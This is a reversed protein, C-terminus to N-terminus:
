WSRRNGGFRVANSRTDHQRGGHDTQLTGVYNLFRQRAIAEGEVNARAAEMVEVTKYLWAQHWKGDLNPTQGSDTLVSLKAVYRMQLSYASNPSPFLEIWNNTWAYFQPIGGDFQPSMQDLDGPERATLRVVTTTHSGTTASSGQYLTLALPYDFDTPLGVRNGGSTTSSVAISEGPIHYAGSATYVQELALNALLSAESTGFDSRNGAYGTATSMVQGLTLIM